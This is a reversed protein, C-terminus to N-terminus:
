KVKGDLYDQVAQEADEYEHYVHEADGIIYKAGEGDVLELGRELFTLTHPTSKDLMFTVSKVFRKAAKGVTVNGSEDKVETEVERLVHEANLIHAM